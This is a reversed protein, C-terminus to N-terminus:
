LLAPQAAEFHYMVLVTAVLGLVYSIITANFIPKAFDVAADPASTDDGHSHHFDYRLLLAVFIGPVVIDGLGLISYQVSTDPESTLRPFQLKIPADFSMAVTVMVDTATQFPQNNNNNNNNPEYM